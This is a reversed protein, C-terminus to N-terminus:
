QEQLSEQFERWKHKAWGRKYDMHKSLIKFHEETLVNAHKEVLRFYVWSPKYGRAEQTAILKLVLSEARSYGGLLEVEKLEIEKRHEIEKREAIESESMLAVEGNEDLKSYSPERDCGKLTWNRPDCPLGHEEIAGAHDLVLAVKDGLPRLARGVMQLYLAISRTPRALQVVECAPVDFGETVITCNCLVQTEGSRFRNLVAERDGKPTKGDIHEASIGAALYERMINLSHQIGVAFVICRKGAALRQYTAVLDGRLVPTDCADELAGLQYDGLRKKVSKLDPIEGSFARYPALYGQSQMARVQPGAILTEFIGEFGRGDLRVPTATVGIVYADPYTKLLKDYASGVSFHHAEDVVILRVDQPKEYKKGSFTQVSVCHVQEDAKQAGGAYQAWHRVGMRGLRQSMQSILEVRHAILMARDGRKGVFDRVIQSFITTKGGGTVLQLLIRRKGERVAQYTQAILSKQYDRLEIQEM